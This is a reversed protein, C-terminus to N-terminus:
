AGYLGSRIVAVIGEGHIGAMQLGQERARADFFAAFGELPLNSLSSELADFREEPIAFFDGKISISRVILNTQDGELEVEIRLLKCGEPKGQCHLIM